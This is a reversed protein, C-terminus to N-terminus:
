HKGTTVMKSASGVLTSPTVKMQTLAGSAQDIKFEVFGDPGCCSFASTYENQNSFLYMGNPDIAMTTSGTESNPGLSVSIPMGPLLPLTGSSDNNRLDYGTIAGVGGVYIFRNQPDLASTSFGSKSNTNPEETLAGTNADIAFVNLNANAEDVVFLRQSQSDATMLLSSSARGVQCQNRQYTFPSGAVDTLAGTSADVSYEYLYAYVPGCPQTKWWDGVPAGDVHTYLYRGNPTIAPADQLQASATGSYALTGDGAVSFIGLESASNWPAVYVFKGSPHVALFSASNGAALNEKQSPTGSSADLAFVLLSTPGVCCGSGYQQGLVYAFHHDTSLAM